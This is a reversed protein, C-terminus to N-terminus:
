LVYAMCQMYIDYAMPQLGYPMNHHLIPATAKRRQEDRKKREEDTEVTRRAEFKGDLLGVLETYRCM